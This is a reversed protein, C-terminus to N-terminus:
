DPDCYGGWPRSGQWQYLAWALDDQDYPSAVSPPVGILEPRGAHNAASNWTAQLFQYAGLYPGAPNYAAYNGGSERTRTCVLFAEGHRPHVGPTPVYTPPAAPPPAPAATRPRTTPATAPTTTTTTSTTTAAVAADRRQQADLLMTDIVRGRDRVEDLAVAASERVSRLEARQAALRATVGRLDDATARDRANLRGLWQARRAAELPDTATIVSALDNGARKYAAVARERTLDRLRDAQATLAPIRAELDDIRRHLEALTGLAAFYREALVDAEARLRAIEADADAVPDAVPGPSQAAVPHPGGWASWAAFAVALALGPAAVRRGLRNRSRRGTSPKARSPRASPVPAPM